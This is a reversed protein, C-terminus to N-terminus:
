LGSTPPEFGGGAVLSSIGSPIEEKKIGKMRRVAFYTTAAVHQYYYDLRKKNTTM